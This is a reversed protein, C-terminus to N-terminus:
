GVHHKYESMAHWIDIYYKNLYVGCVYWLRTHKVEPFLRPFSSSLLVRSSSAFPPLFDILHFQCIIGGWIWSSRDGCFFNSLAFITLCVNSKKRNLFHLVHSLHICVYQPQRRFRKMVIYTMKTTSHLVLRHLLLLVWGGGNKLFKLGYGM